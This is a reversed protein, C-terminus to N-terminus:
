AKYAQTIKAAPDIHWRSLQLQQPPGKYEWEFREKFMNAFRIVIQVEKAPCGNETYFFICEGPGILNYTKQFHNNPGSKGTTAKKQANDPLPVKSLYVGFAPGYGKNLLSIREQFYKMEHDQYQVEVKFDLIPLRSYAMNKRSLENTRQTEKWYKFIYIATVILTELTAIGLLISALEFTSLGLCVFFSLILLVVFLCIAILWPRALFSKLAATFGNTMPVPENKNM